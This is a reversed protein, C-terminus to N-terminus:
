REVFAKLRSLAADWLASIRDLHAHAEALRKAELRWVRERGRRLGRVLGADSLIELHKTIAQRSVDSDETLRAISRPGSAALRDLLSLRTADGLAAFLPAADRVRLRSPADPKSM